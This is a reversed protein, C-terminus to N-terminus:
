NDPDSCLGRICPINCCVLVEDVAVLAKCNKLARAFFVLDIEEREDQLTGFAMENGKKDIHTRLSKLTGIVTYITEPDAKAPSGLNPFRLELENAYKWV